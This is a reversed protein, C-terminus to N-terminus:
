FLLLDLLPLARDVWTRFIEFAKKEECVMEIVFQFVDYSIEDGEIALLTNTLLEEATPIADSTLATPGISSHPSIGPVARKQRHTPPPTMSLRILGDADLGPDADRSLKPSEAMALDFSLSPFTEPPLNVKVTSFDLKSIPSPKRTSFHVKFSSPSTFDKKTFLYIV